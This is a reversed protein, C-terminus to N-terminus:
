GDSKHTPRMNDIGVPRTVVVLQKVAMITARADALSMGKLANGIGVLANGTKILEEAPDDCEKQLVELCNEVIETKCM